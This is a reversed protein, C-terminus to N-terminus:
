DTRQGAATDSFTQTQKLEHAAGVLQSLLDSEAKLVLLGLPPSNSEEHRFFCPSPLPHKRHLDAECTFLERTWMEKDKEEEKNKVKM